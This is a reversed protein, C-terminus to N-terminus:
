IPDHNKELGEIRKVLAERESWPFELELEDVIQLINGHLESLTTATDFIQVYNYQHSHGFTVGEDYQFTCYWLNDKKYINLDSAKIKM